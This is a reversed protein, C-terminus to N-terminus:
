TGTLGSVSAVRSTDYLDAPPVKAITSSCAYSFTAAAFLAPIVFFNKPFVSPILLTVGIDGLVVVMTRAGGARLGRKILFGSLWGSFFNGADAAIFPVWVAILGSRLEIGKAVLFIPFWDTVFFWVPDTFSKAIIAGWTQRLKLLDRWRTRVQSPAL